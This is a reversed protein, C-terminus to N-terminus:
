GCTDRRIVQAKNPIRLKHLNVYGYENADFGWRIDFHDAFGSVSAVHFFDAAVSAEPCYTCLNYKYKYM